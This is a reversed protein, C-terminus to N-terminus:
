VSRDDNEISAFLSYFNQCKVFNSDNKVQAQGIMIGKKKKSNSIM